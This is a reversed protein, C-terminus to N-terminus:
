NPASYKSGTQHPEGNCLAYTSQEYLKPGKGYGPSSPEVMKGPEKKFINPKFNQGEPEFIKLLIALKCFWINIPYYRV